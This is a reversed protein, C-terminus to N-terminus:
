QPAHSLSFLLMLRMIKAEPNMPRSTTMVTEAARAISIRPAVANAWPFAEWSWYVFSGVCDSGEV